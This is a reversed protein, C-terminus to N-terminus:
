FGQLGVGLKKAQALVAPKDLLLVAGAELAAAGDRARTIGCVKVLPLTM